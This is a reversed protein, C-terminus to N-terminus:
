SIAQTVETYCGQERVRRIIQLRASCRAEGEVFEPGRPRICPGLERLNRLDFEAARLQPAGSARKSRASNSRGRGLDRQLLKLPAPDSPSSFSVFFKRLSRATSRRRQAALVLAEGTRTPVQPKNAVVETM